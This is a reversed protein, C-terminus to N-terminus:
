GLYVEFFCHLARRLAGRDTCESRKLRGQCILAQIESHRLEVTVCVLKCARRHRALRQRDAALLRAPTRSRGPNAPQAVASLDENMGQLRLGRLRAKPLGLPDLKRQGIPRCLCDARTLSVYCALSRPLAAAGESPLLALTTEARAVREGGELGIEKSWRAHRASVQSLARRDRPM